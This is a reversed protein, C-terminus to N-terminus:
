PLMFCRIGGGAAAFAAVYSQRFAMIPRLSRIGRVLRAGRM